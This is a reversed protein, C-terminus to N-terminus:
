ARWAETPDSAAHHAPAMAAKSAAERHVECGVLNLQEKPAAPKVYRAIMSDIRRNSEEIRSMPVDGRETAKILADIAEHQLDGPHCIWFVDVGANAGRIIAEEMGYHDAIAKMQLDDSHIIGDFNMEQRLIGTLVNKSMTAPFHSDIPDFIVHATMISAIGQRIAEAFPVLEIDRLRQRTHSLRPLQTHSDLSTDGHGPFHKGCAAVGESQLGRMVACGIRAVLDPTSGFSRDAIVPNAPNTDVDLVPAFNVDINVARLERGMIKGIQEALNEDNGAGVERASPIATFDDGTRMVRGGEHDICLAVPNASSRKIQACLHHMQSKDTINRRFLIVHAVGRDLLPPLTWPLATGDFGAGFMRACMRALAAM